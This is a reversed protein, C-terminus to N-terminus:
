EFFILFFFLDIKPRGCCGQGPQACEIFFLFPGDKSASAGVMGM